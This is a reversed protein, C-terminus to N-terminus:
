AVLQSGEVTVADVFQFTPADKQFNKWSEEWIKDEMLSILTTEGPKGVDLGWDIRIGGKDTLICREHFFDGRHHKDWRVIKLSLGEPILHALHKDCNKQFEQIREGEPKGYEDNDIKTHYEIIPPKNRDMSALAVLKALLVQWRESNPTFMKDVFIIRDSIRLLGAVADGLATVTREVRVERDNQWCSDSPTIEDAILVGAPPDVISDVIVAHFPSGKEFQSLANTVWNTTKDYERGSRVLGCKKLRKLEFELERKQIFSFSSCAGYVERLWDKPFQSVLRGQSVGFHEILYRFNQWKKLCDPEVAYEYLM